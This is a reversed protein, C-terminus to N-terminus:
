CLKQCLGGPQTAMSIVFALAIHISPPKVPESAPTFDPPHPSPTRQCDFFHSGYATLQSSNEPDNTTLPQNGADRLAFNPTRLASNGSTLSPLMGDR